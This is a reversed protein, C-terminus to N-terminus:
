SYGVNLAIHPNRKQDSRADLITLTTLANSCLVTNSLEYQTKWLLGEEITSIMLMDAHIDVTPEAQPPGTIEPNGPLMIYSQSMLWAPHDSEINLVQDSGVDVDVTWEIGVDHDINFQEADVPMVLIALLGILLLSILNKM